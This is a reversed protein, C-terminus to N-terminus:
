FGILTRIIAILGRALLILAFGVFTWILIQRAKTIQAPNGGATVFLIGAIVIMLPAIIIAFNFVLTLINNVIDTFDTTQLPNCICTIGSPSPPNEVGANLQSCYDQCAGTQASVGLAGGFLFSLVLALFLLQKM